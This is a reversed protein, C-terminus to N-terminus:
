QRPNFLRKLVSIAGCFRFGTIRTSNVPLPLMLLPMAGNDKSRLSIYRPETDRKYPRYLCLNLVSSLPFFALAQGYFSTCPPEPQQSMVWTPIYYVLSSLCLCAPLAFLLLVSLVRSNYGIGEEVLLLTTKFVSAHM